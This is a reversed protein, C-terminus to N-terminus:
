SMDDLRYVVIQRLVLSKGSVIFSFNMFWYGDTVRYWYELLCWFKRRLVMANLRVFSHSVALLM